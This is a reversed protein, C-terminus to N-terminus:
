QFAKFPLLRSFSLPIHPGVMHNKDINKIYAAMRDIFSQIGPKCSDDAPITQSCRPENFINWSFVAPDNKYVLGNISNVRCSASAEHAARYTYPKLARYLFCHLMEGVHSWHGPITVSCLSCQLQQIQATDKSRGCFAHMPLEVHRKGSPMCHRRAEM